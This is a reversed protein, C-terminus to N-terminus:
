TQLGGGIDRLRLHTYLNDYGLLSWQSRSRITRAIKNGRYGGKITMERVNIPCHQMILIHIRIRESEFGLSKHFTVFEVQLYAIRTM